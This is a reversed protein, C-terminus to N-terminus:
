SASGPATERGLWALLEEPDAKPAALNQKRVALDRGLYLRLDARALLPALPNAELAARTWGAASAGVIWPLNKIMWSAPWNRVMTRLRNRQLLRRKDIRVRGMTYSHRHVVRAEPACRCIFDAWRARFALDLDEYYAFYGPEFWGAEEILDRRYMAASGAPGFVEFPEGSKVEKSGHGALFALGGRSVGLGRSDLAGEPGALMVQSAIMAARGDEAVQAMAALWGSEAVADNNITAVWEGKAAGLGAALAGAFGLGKDLGILRVGHHRSKVLERSGDNSADDVVIVEAPALTQAALSALCAGLVAEGERNPVIVSILPAM